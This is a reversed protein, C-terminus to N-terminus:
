DFTISDIQKIIKRVYLNREESYNQLHKALVKPDVNNWLKLEIIRVKRLQEYQKSTNINEIYDKVSSCTDKYILLGFKSDKNKRPKLHEKTLDWTRMGFYNNGELAFRSRGWNSEIIAQAVVLKTPIKNKLDYEKQIKKSCIAIKNIFDQNNSSATSTILIFILFIRKM